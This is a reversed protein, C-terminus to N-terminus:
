CSPMYHIDFGTYVQLYNNSKSRSFLIGYSVMTAIMAKNRPQRKGKKPASEEDDTSHDDDLLEEEDIAQAEESPPAFLNETSDTVASGVCCLTNVLRSFMPAKDSLKQACKRLDFREAEEPTVSGPQMTMNGDEVADKLEQQFIRICLDVVEEGIYGTLERTGNASIRKEVTFRSNRLMARITSRFGGMQYFRGIRTKLGRHQSTFMAELFPGLTPFGQDKLFELCRLVRRDVDNALPDVNYNHRCHEM